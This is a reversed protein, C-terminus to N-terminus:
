EYDCLTDIKQMLEANEKETLASYEVYSLFLEIKEVVCYCYDDARNKNEKLNDNLCKSTLTQKQEETWPVVNRNNKAFDTLNSNIQGNKLYFTNQTIVNSNYTGSEMLEGTAYFMKYDGHRLGNKYNGESLKQGNLYYYVWIGEEQDNLIKGTKWLMGNPHYYITEGKGNEFVGISKLAGNEYYDHLTDTLQGNKYMAQQWLQGSPYWFISEGYLQNNKYNVRYKMHGNDYYYVSVGNRQNHFISFVFNTDGTNYFGILKIDSTDNPNLYEIKTKANGDPYSDLVKTNCNQCVSPGIIMLFGLSLLFSEKKM